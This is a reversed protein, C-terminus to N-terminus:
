WCVRTESEGSSGEWTLRDIEAEFALQEQTLKRQQRYRHVNKALVAQWDRMAPDPVIASISNLVALPSVSALEIGLVSHATIRCEWSRM